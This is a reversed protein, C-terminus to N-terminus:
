GDLGTKAMQHAVQPIPRLRWVQAQQRLGGGHGRSSLLFLLWVLPCALGIAVTLVPPLSGALAVLLIFAGLSLLACLATGVAERWDSEYNM